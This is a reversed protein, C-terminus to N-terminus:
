VLATCCRGRSLSLVIRWLPPLLVVGPLSLSDCRAACRSLCQLAPFRRPFRQSRACVVSARSGQAGVFGRRFTHAVDCRSYWARPLSLVCPAGAGRAANCSGPSRRRAGGPACPTGCARVHFCRFCVPSCFAVVGPLVVRPLPLRSHRSCLAGCSRRSYVGAGRAANCSGPFRRRAGCPLLPLACSTGVGPTFLFRGRRPAGCARPLSLVRPAGRAGQLVVPVPLASVRWRSRWVPSTHAVDCRPLTVCM